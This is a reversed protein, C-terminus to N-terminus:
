ETMEQRRTVMEAALTWNIKTSANWTPSFPPVFGGVLPPDYRSIARTLTTNARDRKRSTRCSPCACKRGGPFRRSRHPRHRPLVLEADEDNLM